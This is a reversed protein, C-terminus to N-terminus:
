VESGPEGLGLAPLRRRSGAADGGGDGLLPLAAAAERPGAPQLPEGSTGLRRLWDKVLGADGWACVLGVCGAAM